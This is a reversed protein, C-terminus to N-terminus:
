IGSKLKPMEKMFHHAISRVIKLISECNPSIADCVAIRVRRIRASCIYIVLSQVFLLYIKSIEM